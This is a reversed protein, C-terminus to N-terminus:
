GTYLHTQGSANAEGSFATGSVDSVRGSGQTVSGGPVTVSPGFGSLTNPTSTGVDDFYDFTHAHFESGDEGFQTITTLLSKNFQGTRYDLQYRRILPNAESLLKVDITALRDAM